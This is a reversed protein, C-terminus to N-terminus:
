RQRDLGHDRHWPPPPLLLLPRLLWGWCIPPLSAAASLPAMYALHSRLDHHRRSSQAGSRTQRQRWSRHRHLLLLLLLLLLSQRRPGHLRCHSRGALLM